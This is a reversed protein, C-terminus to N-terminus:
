NSPMSMCLMKYLEYLTCLTHHVTNQIYKVWCLLSSEQLTPSGFLAMNVNPSKFFFYKKLSIKGFYINPINM